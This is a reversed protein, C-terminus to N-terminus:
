NKLEKKMQNDVLDVLCISEGGYDLVFELFYLIESSALIDYSKARIVVAQVLTTTKDLQHKLLFTLRLPNQNM